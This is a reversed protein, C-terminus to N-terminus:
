GDRTLHKAMFTSHPSAVYGGFPGCVEFGASGYLSRAPAFADATGTELLVRTIGQERARDLLARLLARAVGRGRAAAATHMSKLEAEEDSLRQLAGIGLLRGGERASFVELGTLDQLAHVDEPPSLALTFALHQDVLARIDGAQPDDPGAQIV